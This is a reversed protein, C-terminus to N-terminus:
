GTSELGRPLELWSSKVAYARFGVPSDSAEKLGFLVVEDPHNQNLFASIVQRERFFRVYLKFPEWRLKL